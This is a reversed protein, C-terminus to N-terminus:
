LAMLALKLFFCCSSFHASISLTEASEISDWWSFIISTSEKSSTLSRCSRRARGHRASLCVHTIPSM